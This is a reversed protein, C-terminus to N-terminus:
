QGAAVVGNEVVVSPVLLELSVTAKLAALTSWNNVPLLVANLLTVPSAGLQKTFVVVVAGQKSQPNGKKKPRLTKVAMSPCLVGAPGPGYQANQYEVASDRSEM